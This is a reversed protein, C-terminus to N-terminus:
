FVADHAFRTFSSQDFDLHLIQTDECLVPMAGHIVPREAAAFPHHQLRFRQEFRHFKQQPTWHAVRRRFALEIRISRDHQERRSALSERLFCRPPIRRKFPDYKDASPVFSHVLAHRLM